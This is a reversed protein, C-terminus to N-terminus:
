WFSQTNNDNRCHSKSHFAHDQQKPPFSPICRWQPPSRKVHLMAKKLTSHIATSSSNPLLLYHFISAYHLERKSVYDNDHKPMNMKAPVWLCRKGSVRWLDLRSLHREEKSRAIHLSPFLTYDQTLRAHEDNANSFKWLMCKVMSNTRFTVWLSLLVNNSYGKTMRWLNSSASLFLTDSPNRLM